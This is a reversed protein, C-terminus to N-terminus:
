PTGNKSRLMDALMELADLILERRRGSIQITRHSQYSEFLDILREIEILEPPDLDNMQNIETSGFGEGSTARSKVM